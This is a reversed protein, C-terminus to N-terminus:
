KECYESSMVVLDSYGNKTIFIPEQEKHQTFGQDAYYAAYYRVGKKPVIIAYYHIPFLLFMRHRKAISGKVFFM